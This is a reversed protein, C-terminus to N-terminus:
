NPLFIRAGGGGPHYTMQQAIHDSAERGDGLAIAIHGSETNATNGRGWVVIAGAPLTTLNSTSIENFRPHRALQDAAMYADEGTLFREVVRDVVNAVHTYCWGVTNTRNAEAIAEAALRNGLTANYSAGYQSSQQNNSPEAQSQGNNQNQEPPNDTPSNQGWQNQENSGAGCATWIDGQVVCACSGYGCQAEPYQAGAEVAQASWICGSGCSTGAEVVSPTNNSSGNNNNSEANNNSATNYGDDYGYGNNNGDDYGYGNNYGDDYGYGNNYGDDYGYGENYGYSKEASEDNMPVEDACATICAFAVSISVLRKALSKTNINTTAFVSM